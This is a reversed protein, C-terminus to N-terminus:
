KLQHIIRIILAVGKMRLTILKLKLKLKTLIIQHCYLLVQCCNQECFLTIVQLNSKSQRWKTSMSVDTFPIM